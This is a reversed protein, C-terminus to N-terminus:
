SVLGGEADVAAVNAAFRAQVEPSFLDPDRQILRLVKVIKKRTFVDCGSAQFLEAIYDVISLAVMQQDPTFPAEM